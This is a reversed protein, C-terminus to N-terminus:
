LTFFKEPSDGVKKPSGVYASRLRGGQRFYAYWYPGHGPKECKRCNKGCRVLELRFTVKATKIERVVREGPSAPEDEIAGLLEDVLRRM